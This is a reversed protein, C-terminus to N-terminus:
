LSGIRARERFVVAKITVKVPAIRINELTVEGLGEDSEGIKLWIFARM